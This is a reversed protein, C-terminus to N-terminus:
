YHIAGDMWSGFIPGTTNEKTFVKGLFIDEPGIPLLFGGDLALEGATTHEHGIANSGQTQTIAVLFGKFITGCNQPRNKVVIQRFYGTGFTDFDTRFGGNDTEDTFARLTGSLAEARAAIEARDANTPIPRDPLASTDPTM